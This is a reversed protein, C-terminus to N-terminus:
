PANAVLRPPRTVRDASIMVHCFDNDLDYAFTRAFVNGM